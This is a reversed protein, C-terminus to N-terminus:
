VVSSAAADRSGDGRVPVDVIGVQAVRKRRGHGERAVAARDRCLDRDDVAGIRREAGEGDGGGIRVAIRQALM